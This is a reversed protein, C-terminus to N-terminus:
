DHCHLTNMPGHFGFLQRGSRLAKLFIICTATPLTSPAIHVAVIGINLEINRMNWSAHAPLTLSMSEDFFYHRMHFYIVNFYITGLHHSWWLTYKILRCCYWSLYDEESATTRM